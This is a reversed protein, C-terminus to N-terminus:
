LKVMQDYDTLITIDRIDLQRRTGQFSVSFSTIDTVGDTGFISAKTVAEAMAADYPLADIDTLWPVGATTDLFWEGTFTLLRQRVHQGVALAQTVIRLNGSLDTELDNTIADVYIGLRDTM